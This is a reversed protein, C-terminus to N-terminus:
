DAKEADQPNGNKGKEKQKEIWAGILKGTEISLRAWLEYGGPNLLTRRNGKRDTYSKKRADRIKVRLKHNLIDLDQLTTKKFYKLNAAICRDEMEDLIQLIKEGRTYRFVAPWNPIIQYALDVMEEVKKLCYQGKLEDEIQNVPEREPMPIAEALHKLGEESRMSINHM